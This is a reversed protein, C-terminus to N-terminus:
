RTQKKSSYSARIAPLTALIHMRHSIQQPRRPPARAPRLLLRPLKTAQTARVVLRGPTSSRDAGLADPRAVESRALLEIQGLVQRAAGRLAQRSSTGTFASNMDATPRRARAPLRRPRPTSCILTGGQDLVRVVERLFAADDDLHEITELSVYLDRRRALPCAPADAVRFEAGPIAKQTAGEVADPSLDFGHLERAAHALFRACTGIAARATSSAAGAAYGAAFRLARPARETGM